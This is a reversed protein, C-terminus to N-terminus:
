PLNTTLGGNGIGIDPLRYYHHVEGGHRFVLPSEDVSRHLVSSGILFDAVDCCPRKFVQQAFMATIVDVEDLFPASDSGLNARITVPAHCCMIVSSM